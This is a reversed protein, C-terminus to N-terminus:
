GVLDRTVLFILVWMAIYTPAEGILGLPFFANGLITVLVISANLASSAQLSRSRLLQISRRYPQSSPATNRRVQTKDRRFLWGAVCVVALMILALVIF